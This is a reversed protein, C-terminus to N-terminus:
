HGHHAGPKKVDMILEGPKARAPKAPWVAAAPTDGSWEVAVSGKPHQYWGPDKYDNRALGERVKVTTFMGGMDIPGFPGDGSMMPLTNEPLPMQMGGMSGGKDGMVMYGPVLSNIKKAVGRQDVGIMTPVAHGMANM